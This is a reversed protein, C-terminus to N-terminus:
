FSPCGMIKRIKFKGVRKFDGLEVIMPSTQISNTPIILTSKFSINYKGRQKSRTAILEINSGPSVTNDILVTAVGNSDTVFYQKTEAHYLRIGPLEKKTKKDIVRVLIKNENLPKVDKKETTKTEKQLTFPKQAQSTSLTILGAIVSAALTNWYKKRQPIIDYTKLQEPYVRCCKYKKSMLSDIIEEESMTTFDAVATSCASCYRGQEKATMSNWNESCPNNISFTKKM